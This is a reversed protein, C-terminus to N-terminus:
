PLLGLRGAEQRILAAGTRDAIALAEDVAPAPDAAGAAAQRILERALYVVTGRRRSAEVARTAAEAATEADGRTLALQALALDVPAVVAQPLDALRGAYPWLAKELVSAADAEGTLEATEALAVVTALWTFNAGVDHLDDAVLQRLLTRAEDVRGAHGYAVSLAAGYVATLGTQGAAAELLPVVEPLRGQSHRLMVLGPGYWNTPDFGATALEFVTGATREAADLDGALAQRAARFTTVAATFTPPLTRDGGAHRAEDMSADALVLDGAERASWARTALGLMTFTPQGLRRGLEILEDAAPHRAAANDPTRAAIRYSLLVHGITAPDDIQRAIDLAEHACRAARDPDVFCLEEAAVALTRARAISPEPGIEALAEETISALDPIQDATPHGPGGYRVMAWGVEALALADGAARATRAASTLVERYRPDGAGQLLEGYRIALRLELAPDPPRLLGAVELAQAHHAAAEGFALSREAVAAAAMSLDIAARPDAVPAAICAHRALEPLVRPDDARDSLAVVVARHLQLRRRPSITDYRATRVLAHVFGWRLPVTPHEAVLGATAARDLCELTDSLTRHAAEAMVAADFTAGLVAAVDLLALDDGDLRAYRRLLLGPLAPGASADFRHVIERVLLPNGDTEALVHAPDDDGGLVGVLEAVEETALGALAIREVTAIRALDALFLTLDEDLDPTADRATLLVLLPATGGTRAIHRLADLTTGTAWHVDEIVVLTPTVAARALYGQLGTLVDLRASAPDLVEATGAADPHDALDPALRSLAERRNGVRRDVELPDLTSVDAAIAQAFPEFPRRGEEVCGGLLVQAGEAHVRAALESALRSKGMGAEGTLLVVLTQGTAARAWAADLRARETTRGVYGWPDAMMALAGPLPSSTPRGGHPGRDPLSRAIAALELRNGADLKRLLSSVHSEVTRESVGLREAVEANTLREALALLVERERPSVGRDGLDVTPGAPRESAAM